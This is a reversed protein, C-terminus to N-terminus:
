LIWFSIYISFLMFHDSCQSFMFRGYKEFAVEWRAQKLGLESRTSSRGAVVVRVGIRCLRQLGKLLRLSAGLVSVLYLPDLPDLYTPPQRPTEGWFCMVSEAPETCSSNIYASKM